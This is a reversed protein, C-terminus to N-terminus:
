SESLDLDLFPEPEVMSEKMPKIPVISRIPAAQIPSAAMPGPPLTVAVGLTRRMQEIARMRVSGVMEERRELEELLAMAGMMAERVSTLEKQAAGYASQLAELQARTDRVAADSAEWGDAELQASRAKEHDLAVSLTEAHQDSEAARQEAATIAREVTALRVLMAGLQDADSAHQERLRAIEAELTTIRTGATDSTPRSSPARQLHKDEQRSPPASDVRPDRPPPGTRERPQRKPKGWDPM